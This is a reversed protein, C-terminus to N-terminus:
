FPPAEEPITFTTEYEFSSEPLKNTQVLYEEQIGPKIIPSAGNYLYRNSRREFDFQVVGPIGVLKQKKIKLSHFETLTSAKNELYEPRHTALINDFMNDWMAGGALDYQTPCPYPDGKKLKGPSRPHATIISCLKNERTMKQELPFQYALYQDDRGSFIHLMKNWPDKLTGDYKDKAVHYSVYERIVEPTHVENPYIYTFHEHVFDIGRLYDAQKMQNSYSPDVSEGIYTHILTDFLEDEPYNEPSFVIWRWGEYIAMMLMMFLTFETKGNQPYGTIATLEGRKWSFHPNIAPIHTTIGRPKGNNFTHLMKDKVDGARFTGKEFDIKPLDKQYQDKAEFEDLGELFDKGKM